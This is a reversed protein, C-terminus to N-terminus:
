PLEIDDMPLMREMRSVFLGRRLEPRFDPPGYRAGPEPHQRRWAMWGLLRLATEKLEWAQAYLAHLLERDELETLRDYFAIMRRSVAEFRAAAAGWQEPRTRLLHQFDSLYAAAQPGLEMPLYLCDGFLLLDEMEIRIRGKTGFAPLWAGVAGVYAERPCYPGEGHVYEGLTRVAVFNAEFACNPNLLVGGIAERLERPRGSYPGLHLRQADYDNAHLNDWLVPTRRVVAGLEHISDMSIEGAIIDPGTWLLEIGPDLREGIERLYACSGVDGGAMQGCYVTPCFLLRGPEGEAKRLNWVRNTIAAQALAPTGFRARDAESLAAPIDDWLLAFDCCGIGRLQDLKRELAIWDTERAFEVDLGPALAYIFRIGSTRCACVLNGLAAAESETYLERWLTRHKLDDKPAYLYTNLGADRLWGFLRHREVLAWPRGYFGEVVGALFLGSAPDM